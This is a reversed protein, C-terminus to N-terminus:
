GPTYVMALTERNLIPLKNTVEIKGGLHLQFARDAMQIVKVKPIKRLREVIDRSQKVDQCAVTLDRVMRGGGAEIIDVAGINGGAEGIASTVQGLMGVQNPWAARITCVYSGRQEQPM